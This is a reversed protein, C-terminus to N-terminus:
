FSAQFHFQIIFHFFFFYHTHKRHAVLLMAGYNQSCSLNFHMFELLRTRAANEAALNNYQYLM